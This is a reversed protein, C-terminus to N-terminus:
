EKKGDVLLHLRLRWAFNSRSAQGLIYFLETKGPEVSFAYGSEESGVSLGDGTANLVPGITRTPLDVIMGQVSLPGGSPSTASIGEMTPLREVIVVEMGQVIVPATRALVSLRFGTFYLDLGGNSKAWEWFKGWTHTDAPPDSLEEPSDKAFFYHVSNDEFVDVNPEVAVEYLSGKTFFDAIKGGVGTAMATFLALVAAAAVTGIWKVGRSRWIGNKAKGDDKDNV